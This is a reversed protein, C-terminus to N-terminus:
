ATWQRSWDLYRRSELKDDYVDYDYGINFPPDAFALDVVGDDLKSMGAICDRNYVADLRLSM